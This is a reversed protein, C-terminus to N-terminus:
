THYKTKHICGGKSRKLSFFFLSHAANGIFIKKMLIHFIEATQIVSIIIHHAYAFWHILHFFFEPALDHGCIIMNRKGYKIELFPSLFPNSRFNGKNKTHHGPIEYIFYFFISSSLVSLPHGHDFRGIIPSFVQTQCLTQDSLSSGFDPDFSKKQPSPHVPKSRLDQSN